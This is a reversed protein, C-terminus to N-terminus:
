EVVVAHFITEGRYLYESTDEQIAENEDESMIKYAVESWVFLLLSDTM